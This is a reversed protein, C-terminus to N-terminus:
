GAQALLTKAAGLLTKAADIAKAGQITLSQVGTFDAVREAALSGDYLHKLLDVTARTSHAKYGKAALLAKVTLHMPHLVAVAISPGDAPPKAEIEALRTAATELLTLAEFRLSEDRTVTMGAWLPLSALARATAAKTTSM